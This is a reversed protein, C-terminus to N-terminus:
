LALAREQQKWKEWEPLVSETCFKWDYLDLSGQVGQWFVCGAEEENIHLSLWPEIGFWVQDIETWAKSFIADHRFWFFSGSYHWQSRSGTFGRGIKKFPGACSHNALVGAVHPWYDLCSEYMLRAWITATTGNNEALGRRVGKSHGYFTVENQNTNQVMGFMPLFTAVERLRPNNRMEIFQISDDAFERRVEAASDSKEDVAISVIKRGTFLPLRRKIQKVNWQWVGNGKAPWIHYLLNRVNFRDVAAVDPRPVLKKKEGDKVEARRIAEDVMGGVMEYATKDTKAAENFLESQIAADLLWGIIENRHDRCGNPGWANMQKARLECQCNPGMTFEAEKIGEMLETGPGDGLPPKAPAHGNRRDLLMVGPVRTSPRM